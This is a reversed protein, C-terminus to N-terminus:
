EPLLVINNVAGNHGIRRVIKEAEGLTIGLGSSVTTISGTKKFLEMAFLDRLRQPSLDSFRRIFLALYKVSIPTTARAAIFYRNKPYKDNRSYNYLRLVEMHKDMICINTNERKRRVRIMKSTFDIDDKLLCSIEGAKLGYYRMLIFSVMGRLDENEELVRELNMSKNYLEIYDLEDSLHREKNAFDNRKAGLKLISSIAKVDNSATNRSYNNDILHNYYVKLFDISIDEKKIESAPVGLVTSAYDYIKKARILYHKKTGERINMNNVADIIYSPLTTLNDDM